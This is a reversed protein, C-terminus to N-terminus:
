MCSLRAFPGHFPTEKCLAKPIYHVTKALTKESISLQFFKQKDNFDQRFIICVYMYITDKLLMNQLFTLIAMAVLSVSGHYWRRPCQTFRFDIPLNWIAFFYPSKERFNPLLPGFQPRAIDLNWSALHSPLGSLEPTSASYTEFQKFIGPLSRDSTIYHLTTMHMM